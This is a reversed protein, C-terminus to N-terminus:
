QTIEPPWPAAIHQEYISEKVYFRYALMGQLILFDNNPDNKVTHVHWDYSPIRGLNRDAEDTLHSHYQCERYRMNNYILGNQGYEAPAIKIFHNYVFQAILLVFIFPILLLIGYRIKHSLKMTRIKASLKM